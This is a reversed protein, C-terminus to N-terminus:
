DRPSPSTYLLCAMSMIHFVGTLFIMLLDIAKGYFRGRGKEVQFVINLASRLSSFVWTSSWILGGIGLIGVIKRDQIIRLIIKTIKPDLSPAVNELYHRIHVLVERDTYLYRGAIALLLLTLPILCILLNFTIGSSLLFGHDRDFKKSAEILLLFKWKIWNRCDMLVM